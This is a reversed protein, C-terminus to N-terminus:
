SRGINHKNNDKIVAHLINIIFDLSKGTKRSIELCDNLNSQIMKNLNDNNM